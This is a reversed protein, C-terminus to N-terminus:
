SAAGGVSRIAKLVKARPVDGKLIVHGFRDPLVFRLKGKQKKKDHEMGALIRKASLKFKKVSTVLGLDKILKKQREVFKQSVLGLDRSLYAASLMGLSVAEGHHIGSYGLAQEFGHAFTHGYNLIMRVGSTEREDQMVVKSKIEACTAVISALLPTESPQIEKAKRELKSFLKVDRIVGYKVVEALSALFERKPLTKLVSTDSIVLSPPYFTGVLNKGKELNIATKGGIASDVQALLTTAVNAYLIGRLYTSAAFGTIDGVVGGGLALLTDRREFDRALLVRYLRFLEKESKAREGNPLFHSHVKFGANVLSRQLRKLYFRAIPKQTVICIKGADRKTRKLKKLFLSGTKDLIGSGVCIEYNGRTSKTTIKKM